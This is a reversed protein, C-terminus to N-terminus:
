STLSLLPFLYLYISKCLSCLKKELDVLGMHSFWQTKYKQMQVWCLIRIQIEVRETKEHLSAM